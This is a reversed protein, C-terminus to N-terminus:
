LPYFKSPLDVGSPLKKKLPTASMRRDYRSFIKLTKLVM